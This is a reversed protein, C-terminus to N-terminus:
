FSLIVINLIRSVVVILIMLVMPSFDVPGTAPLIHRIPRLIPDVIRDLVERLPHYPPLIWSLVVWIFLLLLLINAMLSIVQAVFVLIM